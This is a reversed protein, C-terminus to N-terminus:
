KVCEFIDVFINFFLPPKQSVLQSLLLFDYSFVHSSTSVKWEGFRFRTPSTAAYSPSAGATAAAFAAAASSISSRRRAPISSTVVVGASVTNASPSLPSRPSSIPSVPSKPSAYSTTMPPSSRRQSKLSMVREEADKVIKYLKCPSGSRKNSQKERSIEPTQSGADAVIGLCSVPPTETSGRDRCGSPSSRRRHSKTKQSVKECDQLSLEKETTNTTTRKTKEETSHVSSSGSSPNESSLVSGSPTLARSRRNPRQKPPAQLEFKLDCFVDEVPSTSLKSNTEMNLKNHTVGTSVFDSSSSQARTRINGRALFPSSHNRLSEHRIPGPSDEGPSQPQDTTSEPFDFAATEGLASPSSHRRYSHYNSPCLRDPTLGATESPTCAEAQNNDSPMKVDSVTISISQSPSSNKQEGFFKSGGVFM